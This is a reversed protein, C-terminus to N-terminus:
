RPYTEQAPDALSLDNSSVIRRYSHFIMLPIFFCSNNDTQRRFFYQTKLCVQEHFNSRREFNSSNIHGQGANSFCGLFCLSVFFLRM